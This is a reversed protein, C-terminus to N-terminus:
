FNMEVKSIGPFVVNFLTVVIYIEKFTDPIVVKDLLNAMIEVTNPHM